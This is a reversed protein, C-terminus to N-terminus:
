LRVARRGREFGLGSGSYASGLGACYELGPVRLGVASGPLVPECGGRRCYGHAWYGKWTRAVLSCRPWSGVGVWGPGACCVLVRVGSGAASAALAPEFGNRRCHGHVWCAKWIGAVLWYGPVRGRVLGMVLAFAPWDGRLVTRQPALTRSRVWSNRVLVGM